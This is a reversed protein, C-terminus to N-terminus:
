RAEADLARLVAAARDDLTARARRLTGAADPAGRLSEAAKVVDDYADCFSRFAALSARGEFRGGVIRTFDRARELPYRYEALSAPPAGQEQTVDDLKQAMAVLLQVHTRTLKDYKGFYCGAAVLATVVM